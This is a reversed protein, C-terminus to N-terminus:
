GNNIGGLIDDCLLSCDPLIVKNRGKGPELDRLRVGKICTAGLDDEMKARMEFVDPFDERIKNWYGMGGKVCGVCNNNPYGLDYMVPRKIGIVDLMGHAEEKTINNDILPFEHDYEFFTERMRQARQVENKDFGWVYIYPGPNEKEWALRVLKKLHKTCPAGNPGNIYRNKRLVEDVSSYKSRLIVIKRNLYKECDHIFRLSDPHQDPVDIYIYEDVNQALVGAIFSSVGASLWCVKKM